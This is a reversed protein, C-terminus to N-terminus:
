RIIYVLFQNESRSNGTNRGIKNDFSLRFIVQKIIVSLTRNDDPFSALIHTPAQKPTSSGFPLLACSSGVTRRSTINYLVSLVNGRVNCEVNKKEFIIMFVVSLSLLSFCCCTGITINLVRHIM